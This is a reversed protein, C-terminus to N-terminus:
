NVSSLVELLNSGDLVGYGCCADWGEVASYGKKGSVTINDGQTIDWCVNPNQYLYPNIFGVRKKLKQNILAILGATLPAVASTGGIVMKQGDVLINYGTAPDAVAAIDPVGRGQKRSDIAVPVKATSQYSPLPFVDSVGGGTASDNSEHWVIESARKGSDDVVLKTGGCALVYPCSSPFDVHVKGDTMGDGSGTDGAAVCVTVGMTAAAQLAENYATLSQETWNVEASGWSISIVSPNFQTDHIAAKIADLFGKDTNSTFYVVITAEPALAAAVEIDLMVEGDAGNPDGPKNHAKDISKAIVKPSKIGLGKFYTTLDKARFGGGLEIIAICQNKGTVDTPYNYVKALQNPNFSKNGNAGHSDFEGHKASLIQYKPTAVTRNDLGHVSEVIDSLEIPIHIEGERGRFKNGSKDEYNSLDVDFAEELQKITGQLEVIRRAPDSDVITLGAHFAFDEVEQIDAIEAGHIQQFEAKSLVRFKKNEEPDLLDPLKNKAKITITVSTLEDKNIGSVTKGVPTMKLSGKLPVNKSFKTEM